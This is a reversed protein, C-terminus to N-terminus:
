YLPKIIYLTNADKTALADYASQTLSVINHVDNSAVDANMVEGNMSLGTGVKIGGKTSASATPLTYKPM